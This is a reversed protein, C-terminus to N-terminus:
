KQRGLENRQEMIEQCGEGTQIKGQPYQKLHEAHHEYPKDTDLDLNVSAGLNRQLDLPLSTGVAWGDGKLYFYVGRSADHYVDCNPYYRYQHKARYGHAPAHPPPGGKMLASEPNL